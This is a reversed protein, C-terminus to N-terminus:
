SGMFACCQLCHQVGAPVFAQQSFHCKYDAVVTRRAGHLPSLVHIYWGRMDTAFSMAVICGCIM